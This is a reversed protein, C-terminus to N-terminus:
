FSKCTNGDTKRVIGLTNLSIKSKGGFIVRNPDWSFKIEPLIINVNNEVDFIKLLLYDSSINYDYPKFFITKIIKNQAAQLASLLTSSCSGWSTIAYRLYSGVLANYLLLIIKRPVLNRIKYFIGNAKALKTLLSQLHKDWKLASDLLVGLYKM